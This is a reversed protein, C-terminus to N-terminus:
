LSADRFIEKARWGGDGVVAPTKGLVDDQTKRDSWGGGGAEVREDGRNAVQQISRGGRRQGKHCPSKKRGDEM